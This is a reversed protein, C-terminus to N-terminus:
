FALYVLNLILELIWNKKIMMSSFFNSVGESSVSRHGQSSLSSSLVPVADWNYGFAVRSTKNHRERGGIM